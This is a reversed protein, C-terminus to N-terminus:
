GELRDPLRPAVFSLRDMTGDFEGFSLRLPCAFRSGIM